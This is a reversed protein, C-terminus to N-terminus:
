ARHWTDRQNTQEWRRLRNRGLNEHNRGQSDAEGEITSLDCLLVSRAKTAAAAKRRSSVAIPATSLSRRLCLRRSASKSISFSRDQLMRGRSGTDVCSRQTLALSAAAHHLRQWTPPHETPARSHLRQRSTIPATLEIPTTTLTASTAACDGAALEGASRSVSLRRMLMKSLSGMMVNAGDSLGPQHFRPAHAGIM